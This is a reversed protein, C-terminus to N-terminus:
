TKNAHYKRSVYGGIVRLLLLYSIAIGILIFDSNILEKAKEYCLDLAILGVIYVAFGPNVKKM